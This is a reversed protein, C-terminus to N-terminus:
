SISILRGLYTRTWIYDLSFFNNVREICIDNIKPEAVLNNINKNIAHFLIYKTKKIDLSLKNVALWDYVNTRQGNINLPGTSPINVWGNIWACILSFMLAWRRQGKHPSNVPSRHIGRVFPWCRPFHKWKIVDDHCWDKPTKSTKSTRQITPLVISPLGRTVCEQWVEGCVTICIKFHTLKNRVTLINM